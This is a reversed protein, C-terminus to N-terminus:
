TPVLRHIVPAQRYTGSKSKYSVRNRLRVRRQDLCDGITADSTCFAARSATRKDRCPTSAPVRQCVTRILGLWFTAITM